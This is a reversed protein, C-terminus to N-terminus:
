SIDPFLTDMTVAAATKWEGRYSYEVKVEVRTLRANGGFNTTVTTTRRFDGNPDSAGNSDLRTNAEGFSANTMASFGNIEVTSRAREIKSKAINTAIYEYDIKKSMDVTHAYILLVGAIVIAIIVSSILTEVTTIGAKSNLSFMRWM